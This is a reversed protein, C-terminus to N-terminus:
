AFEGDEEMRNVKCFYRYLNRIEEEQETGEAQICIDRIIKQMTQNQFYKFPIKGWRAPFAERKFYKWFSIRNEDSLILQYRDHMLIRGDECEKGWFHEGAMGIGIICRDDEGSNGCDTLVVASNPQVNSPVRPKGKMPGSLVCGTEVYELGEAKDESINYAVQSKLSRKSTYMRRRHRTEIELKEREAELERLREENMREVKKQISDNKLTLYGSFADPFLFLKRSEAFCVTIKNESLATIVGKGFRKHKVAQGLLNKMKELDKRKNKPYGRSGEELSVSSLKM